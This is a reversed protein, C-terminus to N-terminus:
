QVEGNSLYEDAGISILNRGVDTNVTVTVVTGTLVDDGGPTSDIVGNFGPSIATTNAEGNGATIWLTDANDFASQCIGDAGSLIATNTANFDSLVGAKQIYLLLSYLTM